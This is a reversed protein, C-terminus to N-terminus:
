VVEVLAQVANIGSSTWAAGTVPDTEQVKKLFTYSTSLATGSDLAEASPSGSESLVGVKLSRAGADDKAAFASVQIGKVTESALSPPSEMAYSDRNGATDSFNYSSDSDPTSDAVNQYNSPQPSSGAGTLQTYRGAGNPFITDIRCDGLFDNNVSGTQDLIYLDDMRIFHQTGVAFRMTNILGAAGGNRTDTAAALNIWEVGNVKLVCSDASISDSCTFKWEIHYWTSTALAQISTALVTTTRTMSIVGSAGIQLCTQRTAGEFNEIIFNGAAFSTNTFGAFGIVWSSASLGTKDFTGSSSGIGQGTARRSNANSITFSGSSAGYKLALATSTNYHDFGDLHVIM